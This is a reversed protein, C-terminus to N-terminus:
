REKALPYDFLYISEGLVERPKSMRFPRYYDRGFPSLYVGQLTTASIAVVCAPGEPEPPQPPPGFIYGGPMNRYSIGYFEPDATGWYALYLPARPHARQWAALVILDQGWDLNSDSLLELGHRWGGAAVNFFPIYDPFAGATEGALGFALIPLACTQVGTM